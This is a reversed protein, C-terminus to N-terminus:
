SGNKIHSDHAARWEAGCERLAALVDTQPDYGLDARAASIDLTQPFGQVGVSYRTALPEWRSLTFVRSITEMVSAVALARNLPIRRFRVQLGCSELMARLVANRPQPDGSTINYVRGRCSAPANLALRVAAVADGIWTLDMLPDGEGFLPFFGRRAVRVIRPLLATDGPGFLAKPRLMIADLGGAVAQLVLFEAERKTEIYLNAPPEIWPADEKLNPQDKFDFFVSPSSIHVLRKVGTRICADIVYRAATVNAARFERRTGWPSTLAAAHVVADCGDVLRHVVGADAALDCAQFSIGERELAAGAERNRGTAQM